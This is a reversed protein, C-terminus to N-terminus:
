NAAAATVTKGSLQTFLSWAKLIRLAEEVQNDLPKHDLSINGKQQEDIQRREKKTKSTKDDESPLHGDLDREKLFHTPEGNEEAKTQPIYPVVIDPTIGKAQISRGNPTYYRATTLRVASGDELPIITQVSGKGFTQTGMIIARKHDQLAGAVIESASATGENVLVVIPYKRVHKKPRADFRMKQDPMRGDTYVILGKNIFENSISVAQDLLGGPDNRLDLVLGKLGGSKGELESLAKEFDSTTNTQFNSIRIYGYGDELMRSHVSKIPIVDRTITFDKPQTWGDRFVTITVKTGREGRLLKVAEMLTMDKTSKNGIKIIKDNAKLGAKDAPTGEIPSVVTIIGDKMSIEIGIGSFVGKTEVQLEKYEDPTLFSSHPDLSTLMGQIAGYILKQPNVEEVYNRQVLDFVTAFLKLQEYTGGEKAASLYHAQYIGAAIFFLSFAAIVAWKRIARPSRFM